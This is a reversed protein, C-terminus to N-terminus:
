LRSMSNTKAREYQYVDPYKGIDEKLKTMNIKPHPKNKTPKLIIDITWSFITSKSINFQEAIKIFSIKNKSKIEIIKQRLKFPYTM